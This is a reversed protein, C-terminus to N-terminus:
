KKVGSKIGEKKTIAADIADMSISDIPSASKQPLQQRSKIPSYANGAERKLGELALERNRAKQALVEPTDGTRPFYQLEASKFEQNSIAAGSERRLVSNVFNREAQAQRKVDESSLLGTPDLKQIKSSVTTPDFGRSQLDKFEQDALELRNAFTAAKREDGTGQTLEKQSKALQNLKIANGLEDLANAKAVFPRAEFNGGPVLVNFNRIPTKKDAIEQETAPAFGAKVIDLLPSASNEELYQKRQRDTLDQALKVQEFKKSLGEMEARAKREERDNLSNSINSIANAIGLAATLASYDEPQNPNIFKVEAM